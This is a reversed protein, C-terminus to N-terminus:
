NRIADNVIPRIVREWEASSRFWDGEFFHVISAANLGYRDDGRGPLFIYGADSGPEFLYDVEYVRRLSEAADIFCFFTVSFKVGNKPLEDVTGAPWDIFTNDQRKPDLYVPEGNVRVSPGNWISFRGAINPNDITITEALAPGDIQLRAIPCKALALGPTSIVGLLVFLGLAKCLRCSRLASDPPQKIM